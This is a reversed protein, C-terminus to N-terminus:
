IAGNNSGNRYDCPWWTSIVLILFNFIYMTTMDLLIINIARKIYIM